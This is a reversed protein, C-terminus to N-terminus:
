QKLLNGYEKGISKDKDAHRNLHTVYEGWIRNHRITRFVASVIVIVFSIAIALFVLKIVEM